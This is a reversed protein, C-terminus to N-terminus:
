SGEVGSVSLGKRDMFSLVIRSTFPKDSYPMNCMDGTLIGYYPIISHVYGTDSDDLYL